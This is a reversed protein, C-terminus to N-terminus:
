AGVRKAEVTNKEFDFHVTVGADEHLAKEIFSYSQLEQAKENFLRLRKLAEAKDITQIAL